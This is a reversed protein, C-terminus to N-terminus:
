GKWWTLVCYSSLWWDPLLSKGSEAPEKIKSEGAEPITLFLHKNKLGNLRHIITKAAELRKGFVEM